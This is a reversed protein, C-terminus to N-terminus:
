FDTLSLSLNILSSIEYGHELLSCGDCCVQGAYAAKCCELQAFYLSLHPPSDFVKAIENRVQTLYHPGYKVNSPLPLANLCGASPWAMSYDKLHHPDPDTLLTEVSVGM